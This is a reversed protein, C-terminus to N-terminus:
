HVGVRSCKPNPIKTDLKSLCFEDTLKLFQKKKGIEEAKRGVKNKAGGPPM